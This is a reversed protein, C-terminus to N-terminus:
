AVRHIGLGSLAIWSRWLPRDMDGSWSTAQCDQSSEAESVSATTTVPSKYMRPNRREREVAGFVM